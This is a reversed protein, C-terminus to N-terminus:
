KIEKSNRLDILGQYIKWTKAVNKDWTFNEIVRKYGNEALKKALQEDRLLKIIASALAKPDKPPVLLGIENNLIVCSIGGVTTGIVPTKCAMAEALVMGFSGANTYEPLVFVSAQQYEKILQGDPLRGKFIVDSEINLKKAKIRYHGIYDGSGVVALKVDSIDAKIRKVAELLYDLGSWKHAKSLQAVFLISNPVRIVTDIPKFIDTDVGPSVVYTKEEYNDLYNSKVFDSVAIIRQAQSLTKREVLLQYIRALTDNIVRGDLLDGAHYTLVFPIRKKHAVRAAIDAIIPNPTHGHVIDPKEKDMILSITKYWLPNVPSAQIKFMYPLRHVRFNDIKEEIYGRRNFNSCIVAIEVGYKNILLKGINYVYRELGGGEPIFHPCAIVVKLNATKYTIKKKM